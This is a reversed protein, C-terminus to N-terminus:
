PGNPGYYGFRNWSPPNRRPPLPTAPGGPYGGYPPHLPPPSPGGSYGYHPPSLPAVYPGPTSTPEPPSHFRSQSGAGFYGQRPAEYNNSSQSLSFPSSNPNSNTNPFSQRALSRSGPAQTKPTTTSAKNSTSTPPIYALNRTPAKKPTSTPPIYVPRTPPSSMPSNSLKSTTTDKISWSVDLELDRGWDSVPKKVRNAEEQQNIKFIPDHSCDPDLHQGCTSYWHDLEYIRPDRTDETVFVSLGSARLDDYESNETGLIYCNWAIWHDSFLRITSEPLAEKEIFEWTSLEALGCNTIFQSLAYAEFQHAQLKQGLICAHASLSLWPEPSFENPMYPIPKEQNKIWNVFLEFVAANHQPLKLSGEAKSTHSDPTYATNNYFLEADLTFIKIAAGSGVQVAVNTESATADHFITNETDFGELLEYTSNCSDHYEPQSNLPEDLLHHYAPAFQQEERKDTLHHNTVRSRWPRGTM